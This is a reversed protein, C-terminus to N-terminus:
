SCHAAALQRQWHLWITKPSSGTIGICCRSSLRWMRASPQRQPKDILTAPRERVQWTYTTTTSPAVAAISKPSDEPILNGGLFLNASANTLGNRFVVKITDNVQASPPAPTL